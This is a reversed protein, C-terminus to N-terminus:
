TLSCAGGGARVVRAAEVYVERLHVRVDGSHIVSNKPRGPVPSAPRTPPVRAPYLSSVNAAGSAARYTLSQNGASLTGTPNELPRAPNGQEEQEGAQEDSAQRGGLALLRGLRLALLGLARVDDQDQGVVESVLVESRLHELVHWVEARLQDLTARGELVREHGVGQAARAPRGGQTALVGVVVLDEGVLGRAPAELLEAEQAVLVGRHRGPHLLVAVSGREEALVHVAVGLGVHRRAPVLPVPHRAVVQAVDEVLVAVYNVVVGLFVM